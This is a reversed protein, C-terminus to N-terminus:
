EDVEADPTYLEWGWEDASCGPERVITILWPIKVRGSTFSFLRHSSFSVGVNDAVKTMCGFFAYEVVWEQGDLWNAMERTFTEVAAADRDTCAIETVFVPLGFEEHLVRLYKQADGADPGYFHAGLVDPREDGKLRGMFDRLWTRGPEDSAVSPGVLRCGGPRSRLPKAFRSRWLDAASAPTIEPNKLREPENLFLVTPHPGATALSRQLM